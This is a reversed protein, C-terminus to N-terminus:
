VKEKIAEEILSIRCELSNQYAFFKRRLKDLEKELSELKNKLALTEDPEFLLLQTYNEASM